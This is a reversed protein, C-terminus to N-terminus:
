IENIVTDGIDPAEPKTGREFSKVTRAEGRAYGTVDEQAGGYGMFWLWLHLATERQAAFTAVVSGSLRVRKHACLRVGFASATCCIQLM